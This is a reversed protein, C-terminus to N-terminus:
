EMSETVKQSKMYDDFASSADSVTQYLFEAILKERERKEEDQERLIDAPYIQTATYLTIAAAVSINM